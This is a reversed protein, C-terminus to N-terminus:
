NCFTVPEKMKEVPQGFTVVMTKLLKRLLRCVLEVAEKQLIGQPMQESFVNLMM